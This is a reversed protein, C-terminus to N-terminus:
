DTPFVPEFAPPIAAFQAFTDRGGDDPAFATGAVSPELFQELALAAQWESRGLFESVAFEM